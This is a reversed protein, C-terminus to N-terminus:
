FLKRSLGGLNSYRVGYKNLLKGMPQAIGYSLPRLSLELEARWRESVRMRVLPSGIALGEDWM